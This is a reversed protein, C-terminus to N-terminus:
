RLVDSRLRYTMGVVTETGSATSAAYAGDYWGANLILESGNRLSRTVEAAAYAGDEIGPETTTSLGLDLSLDWLGPELAYSLGIDGEFRDYTGSFVSDYQGAFATAAVTLRDSPALDLTALVEHGRLDFNGPGEDDENLYTYVLSWTVMEGAREVGLYATAATWDEPGPAAPPTDVRRITERGLGFLIVGDSLFGADYLVWTGDLALRNVRDVPDAPDGGANTLATEVSSYLTLREAAYDASLRLTEAGTPLGPNMLSFYFLDVREYELGLTLAAGNAPESDYFLSAVIATGTDEPLAGAGDGDWTTEGWALEYRLRGEVLSGDLAVGRGSGTGATAAFALTGQGEYGQVSLRLDSGAIPRFAVRAGAMRDDAVTVGLFNDVGLAETAKLAFLHVQFREDHGVGEVSLGRRNLNAVLAPDFGLSQHGARAILDILASSQRYELLYEAIDAFRGAVQNEDRSDVVYRLRATLSEDVTAAEVTGSSAVHGETTGNESLLGAEHEATFTLTVAPVASAAVEFSYTAFVRYSGGDLVYVVAEHRGPALAASALLVIQGGDIRVFDTLDTGDVEVAVEGIVGAMDVPLVIDAPGAWVAPALLAWLALGGALALGGLDARCGIHLGIAM